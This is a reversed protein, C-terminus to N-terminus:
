SFSSCLDKNRAGHFNKWRFLRSEGGRNRHTDRQNRPNRSLRHSRSRTGPRTEPIFIWRSTISAPKECGRSGAAILQLVTESLTRLERKRTGQSAHSHVPLAALSKDSRSRRGAARITPFCSNFSVDSVTTGTALQERELRAARPISAGTVNRAENVRAGYM